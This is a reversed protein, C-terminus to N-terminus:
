SLTHHYHSPPITFFFLATVTPSEISSRPDAIKNQKLKPENFYEKLFEFHEDETMKGKNYDEEFLM